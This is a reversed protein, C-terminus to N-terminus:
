HKRSCTGQDANLVYGDHCMCIHSHGDDVCIHQCNNGQDCTASGSSSVGQYKFTSFRLPWLLSSFYLFFFFFIWRCCLYSDAYSACTNATTGRRVHTQVQFSAVVAPPVRKSQFSCCRRGDSIFSLTALREDKVGRQQNELFLSKAAAFLKNRRPM